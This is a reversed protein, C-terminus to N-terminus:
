KAPIAPKLKEVIEEALAKADPEKSLTIVFDKGLPGSQVFPATLPKGNFLIAIRLKGPEGNKTAAALRKGGEESLQIAVGKSGPDRSVQAVQKENVILEDSLTIVEGSKALKVTQKGKGAEVVQRIEFLDASALSPIFLLLALLAKM